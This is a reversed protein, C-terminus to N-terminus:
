LTIYKYYYIRTQIALEMIRFLHLFPAEEKKLAWDVLVTIDSM